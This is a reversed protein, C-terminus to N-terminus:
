VETADSNLRRTQLRKIGTVALLDHMRMIQGQAYNEREKILRQQGARFQAVRQAIEQRLTSAAAKPAETKSPSVLQDLTGSALGIPPEREAGTPRIAPPLSPERAIPPLPTKAPIGVTFALSEEVLADLHSKWDTTV